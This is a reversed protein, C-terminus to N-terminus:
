GAVLLCAPGERIGKPATIESSGHGRRMLSISWIQPTRHPGGGGAEGWKREGGSAGSIGEQGIRPARAPVAVDCVHAGLLSAVRQSLRADDLVAHMAMEVAGRSVLLTHVACPPDWQTPQHLPCAPFFDLRLNCLKLVVHSLSGSLLHIVELSAVRVILNRSSPTHSHHPDPGM